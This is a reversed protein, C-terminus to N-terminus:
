KGLKDNLMKLLICVDLNDDGTLLTDIKSAITDAKIKQNEPLRYTQSYAIKHTNSAIEFNFVEDNDSEIDSISVYRDLEHFLFVLNDLLYEEEKDKLQNLRKDIVVNSIKELFEKMTESPALVRDLFNKCKSTLLYKKVGKYRNVLEGKYDQYDEPLSLADVLRDNIRRLLNDYCINLEHVAGKILQLYQELFESNQSLMSERFGLAEPLDEFFAKEPDKASALVNRFPATTPHEFKNTSKAYDNLSRYFQLFPKFTEIFSSATFSAGDDKKLFQRYKKFFEIKVGSVNFAKISYDGPKKQLLEFLEKNINMVYAGQENYIAFDQQRIFLFIPIWFDIVGQKLKIPESKLIKILESIKKPKDVSSKVFKDCINWLGQILNNQPEGLVYVGIDSLRHMGTSKFLTYYIAKEPPCTEKEFGFDEKDSNELMADLLKVRALSIASSIKQKNFLENRLIPTQSYVEKCVRSLLKNFDRYTHVPVCEGKFLWITEKSSSILTENIAKNLLAKEYTIQNIIEKKAVRDELIVNEILYQLKHIEYLHKQIDTVNTFVVFINAIDCHASIEKTAQITEYDIPFVMQIYGDIDNQPKIIEPENRIIFEFYRPTGSKYYEESVAVAKQNVYPTLDSITALPMPVISAAKYLEDEIDIDTGEFLIYSNKYAAFRIIKHLSLLEIIKDPNDIALAHKSYDILLEKTIATSSSGFLNLLGITKVLKLADNIYSEDFIGSEAREIAVRMASWNTTDSNIESLVSFFNYILYDYVHALNYTENTESTFDKLSGKGTSTLFSFLTRENQGYRQIAKTICMASFADLPYLKNITRSDLQSSIFKARKAWNLLKTGAAYDKTTPLNSLQEAALFLLQEVPESFVLEKYRGKVKMWENRQTESLKQAYAGFNQHLTTILIINRSPVNVFEALRQLFYLEKEPNNKSAHELVKGFEDIVIFLFTNNKKLKQYYANLSDFVNRTDDSKSSGLKDALLNSLSNYDGLINLCEFKKFGGFVDKNKLLAQSKSTLDKELAMLYSSKGTGYTGIISFSHIGSNYSSLLNGTVALANPTVIYEFEPDIGYEINISPVYKM